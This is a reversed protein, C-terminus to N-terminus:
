CAKADSMIYGFLMSVLRCTWLLEAHSPLMNYACRALFQKAQICLKLCVLPGMALSHRDTGFRMVSSILMLSFYGHPGPFHLYGAFLLNLSIKNSLKVRKMGMRIWLKGGEGCPRKDYCMLADGAM